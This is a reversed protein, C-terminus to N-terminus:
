FWDTTFLITRNSFIFVEESSQKGKDKEQQQTLMKLKDSLDNIINEKKMKERALVTNFNTQFCFSTNSFYSIYQIFTICLVDTCCFLVLYIM